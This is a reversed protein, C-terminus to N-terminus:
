HPGIHVDLGFIQFHTSSFRPSPEEDCFLEMPVLAGAGSASFLRISATYTEQYNIQELPTIHIWFEETTQPTLSFEATKVKFTNEDSFVLEGHDTRIDLRFEFPLSVDLQVGYGEVPITEPCFSCGTLDLPLIFTDAPFRRVLIDEPSFGLWTLGLDVSEEFKQTLNEDDCELGYGDQDPDGQNPNYIEPCNDAGDEVGDGDDDDDCEDGEGDSDLDEQSANATEVCNDCADGM